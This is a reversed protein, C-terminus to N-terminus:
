DQSFVKNVFINCVERSADFTITHACNPITILEVEEEFSNKVDNACKADTVKDFEGSIIIVETHSEKISKNIQNWDLPDWGLLYGLLSKSKIQVNNYYQVLKLYRLSVNEIDDDNKSERQHFFNQIGSSNLGKSQDFWERYFTVLWPVRYLTKLTWQALRNDKGLNTVTPAPPALLILHSISWEKNFKTFLHLSLYCGMSHGVLHITQSKKINYETLINMILTHLKKVIDSMPYQDLEDSKGFGFVDIALFSKGFLDCLKMLPLFQDLSGGLGPLCIYLDKVDNINSRSFNHCVRVRKNEDSDIFEEHQKIFQLTFDDSNDADLIQSVLQKDQVSEFKHVIDLLKNHSLPEDEVSCAKNILADNNVESM